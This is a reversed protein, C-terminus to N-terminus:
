AGRARRHGKHTMAAAQEAHAWAGAALAAVEEDRLLARSDLQEGAALDLLLSLPIGATLCRWATPRPTPTPAPPNPALRAPMAPRELHRTFSM